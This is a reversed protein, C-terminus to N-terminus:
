KLPCLNSEISYPERAILSSNRRAMSLIPNASSVSTCSFAMGSISAPRSTTAFAGVPVPLVEANPMGIISVSLASRPLGCASTSHGVRSSHKCIVASNCARAANKGSTRMAATYPPCGISRCFFNSASPTSITTAVGPRICSWMSWRLRSTRPMLVTTSSSASSISSM